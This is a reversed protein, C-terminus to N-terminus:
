KIDLYRRAEKSTPNVVLGMDHIIRVCNRALLVGLESMADQTTLDLDEALTQEFLEVDDLTAAPYKLNHIRRILERRKNENM